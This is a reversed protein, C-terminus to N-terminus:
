LRVGLVRRRHSYLDVADVGRELARADRAQPLLDRAHEGHPLVAVGCDETLTVNKISTM